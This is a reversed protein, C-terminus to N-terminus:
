KFSKNYINIQENVLDIYQMLKYHYWLDRYKGNYEIEEKFRKFPKEKSIAWNLRTQFEPDDIEEIFEEMIKFSVNSPIQEFAIFEDPHVEIENILKEIDNDIEFSNEVNPISIVESKKLHYFCSMGYALCDAIENIKDQNVILM